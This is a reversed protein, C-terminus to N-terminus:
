GYANLPPVEGFRNFYEHLLEKEKEEPNDHGSLQIFLNRYPFSMQIKKNKNYRRGCIHTDTKYSPDKKLEIVRELFSVAKGIYLIGDSDEGLLRGIVRVKGNEKYCLKYTGGKSGFDENIKGWLEQDSLRYEKIM